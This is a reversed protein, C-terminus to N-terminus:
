KVQVAYFVQLQYHLYDADNGKNEVPTNIAIDVHKM